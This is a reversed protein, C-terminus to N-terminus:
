NSLHQWLKKGTAADFCAVGEQLDPGNEGLYGMIYLHGNAVVPTSQGAFDASWLPSAPDIKEPLGKELSTGNQNPGRWSLWGKVAAAASTFGALSGALCFLLLSRKM